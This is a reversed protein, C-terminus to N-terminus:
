IIKYSIGKGHEIEVNGNKLKNLVEIKRDIAREILQTSFNMMESICGHDGWFFYKFHRNDLACQVEGDSFNYLTCLTYQGEWKFEASFVKGKEKDFKVSIGGFREHLRKAFKLVNFLFIGFSAPSLNGHDLVNVDVLGTPGAMAEEMGSPKAQPEPNPQFLVTPGVIVIVAALKFNFYM